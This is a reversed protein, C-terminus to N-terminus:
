QKLQFILTVLSIHTTVAQFIYPTQQKIGKLLRIMQLMGVEEEDIFVRYHPRLSWLKTRKLIITHDVSTLKVGYVPFIDFVSLWKQLNNNFYPTWITDSM